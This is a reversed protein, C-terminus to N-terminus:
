EVTLAVIFLATGSTAGIVQLSTVEAEPRPNDLTFHYLRITTDHDRASPNSGTWAVRGASVSDKPDVKTWWHRLHRGYIVPTERQTGDPYHWAIRAVSAGQLPDGLMVAGLCHLRTTLRGVAIPQTREPFMSAHAAHPGILPSAEKLRVVGRIDFETEDLCVRGRPLEVLDNNYDWAYMHLDASDLGGTYHDTLDLLHSPTAPDRPPLRSRDFPLFVSRDATREPQYASEEAKLRERWYAAAYRRIRDPLPEGPRASPYDTDRWPFADWQRVTADQANSLLRQGDPHFEAFNGVDTHGQLVMIQRAQWHDWIELSPIDQHGAISRTIWTVLRRGDPSFNMSWADGRIPMEWVLRGSHIDWFRITDDKGSTALFRGDPTFRVVDVGVDHAKWWRVKNGSEVEWIGAYPDNMAGTALLRGDPSFDLFVVFFSHGRLTHRLAGTQADWIRATRDLSASALLRGDPSYAIEQVAQEHGRLTRVHEGTELDWIWIEGNLQGTALERGGRSFDAYLIPRREQELHLLRRGSQADCVYLGEGSGAFSLKRGDRSYTTAWPWGAVNMVERGARGSWLKVVGDLDASAVYRGDRSFVAQVVLHEHGRLVRTIQLTRADYLIAELTEDLAVLRTGDPSFVASKVRHPFTLRVQGTEMDILHAGNQMGCICFQRGDPSFAIGWARDFYRNADVKVERRSGDPAHLYVGGRADISVAHCGPPDLEMLAPHVAQGDLRALVRGEAWNMLEMTDASGVVLGDGDPTFGIRDTLPLRLGTVNAPRGPDLALGVMEQGRNVVARLQGNSSWTLALVAGGTEVPAELEQGTVCSCVVLWNSEVLAVRDETRHFRLSEVANSARGRSWLMEGSGLDWIRVVGNQGLTGLRHGSADFSLAKVAPEDGKTVESISVVNTHAPISLIDGHCLAMLHGWEWQRLQERCRFLIERARDIRGQQILSQAQAISAYYFERDQGVRAVALRVAAVSAVVALLLVAAGLGALAPRRRCWRWSKEMVGPPRALIPEDRLFRGLEEVLEAATAYRKGPEKQLCKLCITELDRPMRPNLLHPALPETEVVLRATASLTDAVFPPRGTVLYYLTAGMGYVDSAPGIARNQGAAQEPPMFNPSGLPQGSETLTAFEGVLRKALGFDTIRPQDFGDILINSPKLDRHLVGQTHAYQVAEAITKLYTAASRAPLPQERALDALSRGQVFDMTLFPLGDHEGVEHIAVINPHQLQATTEAEIQFRATSQASAFQGGLLMKLAVVRNLSKQRARYVVGMGGRGVEELLECDTLRELAPALAPHDPSEASGRGGQKVVLGVLCSPCLGHPANPPLPRGCEPCSNPPTTEM